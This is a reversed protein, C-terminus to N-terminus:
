SRTDSIHWREIYHLYNSALDQGRAQILGQTFTKTTALQDALSQKAIATREQDEKSELSGQIEEDALEKQEEAEEEEAKIQQQESIYSLVDGTVGTAAQLGSSGAFAAAEAM